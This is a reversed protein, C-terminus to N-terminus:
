TCLPATASRHSATRHPTTRFRHVDKVRNAVGSSFLAALEISSAFHLLANSSIYDVVAWSVVRSSLFDSDELGGGGGGGFSM